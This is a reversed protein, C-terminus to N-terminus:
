KFLADIERKSIKLQVSVGATGEKLIKEAIDKSRKKSVLNNLQTVIERQQVEKPKSKGAVICDILNNFDRVSEEIDKRSMVGNFTELQNGRLEELAPASSSAAPGAFMLKREKKKDPKEERTKEPKEERTKEPKEERTKEPKEERTKEPKNKPMRTEFLLKNFFFKIENFDADIEFYEHRDYTKFNARFGKILIKEMTASDSCPLCDLLCWNPPYSGLRQRLNDSRGVKYIRNGFADCSCLLYVGEKEAISM